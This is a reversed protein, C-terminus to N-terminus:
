NKPNIIRHETRTWVGCEDDFKLQDSCLRIPLNLLTRQWHYFRNRRIWLVKQKVEDDWQNVYPKNNHILLFCRYNEQSQYSWIQSYSFNPNSWKQGTIVDRQGSDCHYNATIEHHIERRNDTLIFAILKQPIVIDYGDNLCNCKSRCIKNM